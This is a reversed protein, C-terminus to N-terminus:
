KLVTVHGTYEHEQGMTEDRVILRWVYVDQYVQVGKYTGDWGMGPTESSFILEGWRDFIFFEYNLPDEGNIVPVFYENIGDGNLTIANPVFLLFEDGIFVAMTVSDICGGASTVTLTVDYNGVAPFTFSPNQGFSSGLGGFDWEWQTAGTSQDTFNIAPDMITTPQPGFSFNATPIADVVIFNAATFTNTCGNADTVTLTVDYSGANAYTHTPDCNTSTNGDGFDWLCTGTAGTNTFVVTLPECGANVDSTFSITPLPLVIIDETDSAGCSGGITYTITHTGAGAVAPDFTGNVPDTIGTGSWTGGSSAATMTAPPADECYPGAPDITANAASLGPNIFVNMNAVCGNADMVGVDYGVACLGGLTPAPGYTGGNDFTYTFGGVGGGGTLTISGDCDGLCTEDVQTASVTVPAPDVLTITTTAICGVGDTVTVTYTGACVGTFVPSAQGPGGIDYTYPTTGGAMNATIEGDCSGVCSVEAGNYNSTVAATLTGGSIDTVTVTATATCGNDDMVTVTYDGSPLGTVTQTAGVPAGGADVWSYTYAGAVTGGAGNGTVTGDASGCTSPTMTATATVATPENITGTVTAICGNADVVDISFPGACLGTFTGGAVPGSGDDYMYPSTGGAGAITVSGDCSGNCLADTQATISGTVAPPDTLTFSMTGACGGADTVSVDYTGACLGTPDEIASTFGGPGTWAYTYPSTGGTPTLDIQGDCAGACQPDTPTGNLVLGGGTYSITIFGDGFNVGDTCAGGPPVLSSGGGGGGGGLPPTAFCDSGGGGGGFWGGGGGGGPGVDYCPDTAGAGGALFSGASGATGSGIWPPGGGGGTITSGGFGGQGFPSSGNGGLACGGIGGTGDTDGGGQGGGGAAIAIENGPGYPPAWIGSYGGGGCGDNPASSSSGGAGGGPYGGAPCGGACGVEIQLVDGPNVTITATLSAGAGGSTGGGQGGAVTIDLSTVCAPVTFYETAGTCNFTTTTQAQIGFSVLALSLILLLNRM